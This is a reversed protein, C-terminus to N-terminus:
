GILLTEEDTTELNTTGLFSYAISLPGVRGIFMSVMLVSLSTKGLQPTIGTSLGVTGFASVQEFLIQEFTIGDENFFILATGISVVAFGVTVVNLAKRIAHKGVSSERGVLKTFLAYLTTTKIGGGTSGPSAGIFMLVMLLVLSVTGLGGIPLTNFGATRATVSQFFAHGLQEFVPRNGDWEAMLFILLGFVTLLGAMRLSVKTNFSMEESNGKWAFRRGIQILTAFGLGGLIILTAISMHLPWLSQVQSNVLGGDIITFGANNFASVSHFASHFAREFSHPLYNSFYYISTVGLLEITLAAGIVRQLLKKAGSFTDVSLVEKVAEGHLTERDVNSFRAIFYTAFAVINLGGLQMLILIVAQGTTTYYESINVTVLGTVCSASVSTFLAQFYDSGVHDHVMMPLSLVVSGALIIIIYSTILLVPMPLKWVTSRSTAAIMEVGSILLLFLHASLRQMGASMGSEAGFAGIRSLAVAGLFAFLIVYLSTELWNSQLFGIADLSRKARYAFQITFYGMAFVLWYEHLLHNNSAHGYGHYWVLSIVSLLAVWFNMTNFVRYMM